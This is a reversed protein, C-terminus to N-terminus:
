YRIGFIMGGVEPRGLIDVHGWNAIKLVMQGFLTEWDYPDSITDALLPTSGPGHIEMVLRQVASLDESNVDHFAMYEGGEIDMKLVAIDLDRIVKRFRVVEVEGEAALPDLSMVSSGSASGPVHMTGIKGEIASVARQHLVINSYPEANRKLIEFNAPEPEYAHVESAGAAAAWVSFAGINAGIDVVVRGRVYDPHMRYVNENWIEDVGEDDDTGKRVFLTASVGDQDSVEVNGHQGRYSM